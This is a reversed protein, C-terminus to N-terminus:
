TTLRELVSPKLLPVDSYRTMFYVLSAAAAGRKLPAGRALPRERRRLSRRTAFRHTVM